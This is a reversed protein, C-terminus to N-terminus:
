AIRVARLVVDRIHLDATASAQDRDRTEHVEVRWADDLLSALDGVEYYDAPDFTSRHGHDGGKRDSGKKLDHGAVLFTGGPAVAALLTRAVAYDDGRLLPAYQLSVLDYSRAPIDVTALDGVIWSVDVGRGAGAAQAREIAVASIDLGTVIWGREALWIADAGEGCGVDLARGPSLGTVDAVLAGNPNGSWLAARERYRDDWDAATVGDITPGSAPRDPM